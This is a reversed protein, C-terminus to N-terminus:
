YHNGQSKAPSHAPMVSAMNATVGVSVMLVRKICSLDDGFGLNLPVSWPSCLIELRSEQLWKKSPVPQLVLIWTCPESVSSNKHNSVPCPPSHPSPSAQITSSTRLQESSPSVLRWNPWEIWLMRHWAIERSRSTMLWRKWSHRRPQFLLLMNSGANKWDVHVICHERHWKITVFNISVNNTTTFVRNAVM